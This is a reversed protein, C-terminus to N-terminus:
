QKCRWYCNILRSLYPTYRSPFRRSYSPTGQPNNNGVLTLLSIWMPSKFAPLIIHCQFMDTDNKSLSYRSRHFQVSSVRVALLLLIRMPISISSIHRSKKEPKRANSPTSPNSPVGTLVTVRIVRLEYWMRLGPFWPDKRGVVQQREPFVGVDATEWYFDFWRDQKAFIYFIRESVVLYEDFREYLNEWEWFISLPSFFYDM